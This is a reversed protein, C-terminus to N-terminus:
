KALEKEAHRYIRELERAKEEEIRYSHKAIRQRAIAAARSLLPTLEEKMWSQLTRHEFLEPVWFADRFRSLTTSHELFTGGPGVEEIISLWEEGEDTGMGKCFRKVYEVIEHDIVAQEASYVEDVSLLGASTYSRAGYLTALVTHIAKEAAAQADPHPSTTLLSKAMVPMGYYRNLQLQLLTGFIDEPSGYVFSGYKMDFPYARVSDFLGTFVKVSPNLAKLLAIGAKLEAISQIYAPVISIPSTVGMVPMTCFYVYTDRHLFRLIIELDSTNVRFPSIAWCGLTFPKEAVRSLEWVYEAVRATSKPAYDLPGSNIWRSYEYAIRYMAVESLEESGLDGPKVPSTGGFGLADALRTMEILDQLTPTRVKGGRDLINLSYSGTGIFYPPLPLGPPYCLNKLARDLREESFKVRDGQVKVGECGALRELIEKSFIQLGIRSAVATASSDIKELAEQSLGGELRYEIGKV